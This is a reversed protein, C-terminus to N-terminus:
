FEQRICLKVASHDTAALFLKIFDSGPSKPRNSHVTEKYFVVPDDGDIPVRKGSYLLVQYDDIKKCHPRDTLYFDGTFLRIFM